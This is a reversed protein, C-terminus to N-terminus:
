ERLSSDFIGDEGDWVQEKIQEVGGLEIAAQRRAELPDMGEEIKDRTLIDLSSLLEEDLLKAVRERSVLNRFLSVIRSLKM